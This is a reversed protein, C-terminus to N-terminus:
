RKAGASIGTRVVRLLQQLRNVRVHNHKRQNLITHPIVGEITFRDYENILHPTYKPNDRVLYKNGQFEIYCAVIYSDNLVELIIDGNVPKLSKDVVLLDGDEIGSYEMCDGIVRVYYIAHPHTGVYDDLSIRDEEYDTGSSEFAAHVWSGALPRSPHLEGSKYVKVVM